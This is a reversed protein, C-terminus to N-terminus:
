RIIKPDSTTYKAFSLDVDLVIWDFILKELAVDVVFCFDSLDSIEHYSWDKPMKGVLQQLFEWVFIAICSVDFIGVFGFVIGLLFVTLVWLALHPVNISCMRDGYDLQYVLASRLVYSFLILLLEFSNLIQDSHADVVSWFLARDDINSQLHILFQPTNTFMHLLGSM